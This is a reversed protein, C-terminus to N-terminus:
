APLASFKGYVSDGPWLMFTLTVNAGGVVPVSPPDTDTVPYM